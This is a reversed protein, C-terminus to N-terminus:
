WMQRCRWSLIAYRALFTYKSRFIVSCNPDLWDMPMSEILCFIRQNVCHNWFSRSRLHDCCSTSLSCLIAGENRRLLSVSYSVARYFSGICGAVLWDLEFLGVDLFSECHMSTNWERFQISRLQKKNVIFVAITRFETCPYHSRWTYWTVRGFRIWFRFLLVYSPVASVLANPSWFFITKDVINALVCFLDYILIMCIYMRGVCTSSEVEAFVDRYSYHPRVM